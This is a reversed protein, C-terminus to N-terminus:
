VNKLMKGTKSEVQCLVVEKLHPCSQVDANKVFQHEHKSTTYIIACYCYKKLECKECLKTKINTCKTRSLTYNTTRFSVCRIM